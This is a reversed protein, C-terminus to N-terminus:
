AMTCTLNKASRFQITIPKGIKKAELSACHCIAHVEGATFRYYRYVVKVRRAQKFLGYFNQAINRFAEEGASDIYIIIGGLSSFSDPLIPWCIQPNYVVLNEINTDSLIRLDCGKGTNHIILRKIKVSRLKVSPYDENLNFVNEIKDAYRIEVFGESM